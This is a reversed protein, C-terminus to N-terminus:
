QEARCGRWVRLWRCGLFVVRVVAWGKWWWLVCGWVGVWRVGVGSLGARVAACLVCLVVVLCVLIAGEGREGRRRVVCWMAAACAVGPLCYFYCYGTQRSPGPRTDVCRLAAACAPRAERCLFAFVM